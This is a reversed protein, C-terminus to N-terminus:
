TRFRNQPMTDMHVGGLHLDDPLGIGHNYIIRLAIHSISNANRRYELKVPVSDQQSHSRVGICIIHQLGQFDGEAGLPM